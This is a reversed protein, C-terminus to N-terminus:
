GSAVDLVSTARVDFESSWAPLGSRVLRRPLEYNPRKPSIGPVFGFYLEIRSGVVFVRGRDEMLSLTLRIEGEEARVESDLILRAYNGQHPAIDVSLMSVGRVVVVVFDWQAFWLSGGLLLGVSSERPVTEISIIESEDLSGDSFADDLGTGDDPLGEILLDEIKMAVVRL